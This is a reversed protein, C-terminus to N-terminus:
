LFTASSGLVVLCADERAIIPRYQRENYLGNEYLVRVNTGGDNESSAARLIAHDDLGRWLELEVYVVLDSPFHEDLHDPAGTSALQICM